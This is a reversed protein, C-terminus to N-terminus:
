EVMLMTCVHNLCAADPDCCDAGIDCRDFEESCEDTKRGCTLEGDDDEQCYGACCEVGSECSKGEAKCPDVVWFGRANGALLEQGPLYFAPHSPDPGVSVNLEETEVDLEIAAVWLKKTTPIETLDHERPDSHWPDITAVNGYLRRSTFVLWAYGGSAVPAVTPEYNLLEDADHNNDAKPLYPMGDEIGNVRDLRHPEGTRLNTWWLEGRSGNRTEFFGGGARETQIQFIVGTGSPSFTPWGAPLDGEYLLQANSFVRGTPDFDMAVLKKGDGTGITADGTGNWFNFAVKQGDHAFVPFAAERVLDLGTTPVVEGTEMDYLATQPDGGVALPEGNALGFAGDPTMGIWALQGNLEPAYVAETNANLLDYSSTIDNNEGHQVTMRSGDSSVSHCVRCQDRGGDGGAVLEPEIAGPKIALTAGGFRGDGGIAGDYNKALHTGYSQYYVTGKLSGRAIKWTQTIPGYVEGDKAVSLEVHLASGAVTQTAAEWVEQPIPHRVFDADAALPSPRAFYGRYEFNAGYLHLAIGEAATAEGPAWMLLPALMGLPFVTQDYPYLWALEADEIPEGDLADRLDDSVAGGPGEGGVGGYGGSSTEVPHDPDAGNQVWEIEITLLTHLVEQGVRAEIVTIGGREGSPTFLGTDDIHGLEGNEVKFAASVVAGHNTVEFQLTPLDEGRVVRLTEGEPSLRLEYDQPGGDWGGDLTGTPEPNDIGDRGGDGGDVEDNAHPNGAGEGREEDGSCAAGLSALFFTALLLGHRRFTRSM